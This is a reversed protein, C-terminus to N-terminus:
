YTSVGVPHHGCGADHQSDYKKSVASLFHQTPITAGTQGAAHPGEGFMQVKRRSKGKQHDSPFEESSDSQDDSKKASNGCEDNRNRHHAGNCSNMKPEAQKHVPESGFFSVANLVMQECDCQGQYHDDLARSCKRQIAKDLIM